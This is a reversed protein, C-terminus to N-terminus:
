NKYKQDHFDSPLHNRIQPVTLLFEYVVKEYRVPDILYSLGHGARPFTQVTAESSCSQAIEFSMSCPVLRDDEGHILLIPIKADKVAEKASCGNLRFRGFIRAALHLFPRCLAVPYHRDTCVKEIIASPTSYPSDAVICVVNEPLELGAAMLVTAAGMSIGNLVIPCHSGFRHVAYDIWMKCDLHETIGFTITNGGSKGHARQDVVLANFGMKRSLLHGGSCDRFACSRYGHFLIELPAGDHLHYYRGLLTCGDFSTIQIEECPAREMIHSICYIHEAVAEYQAGNIPDDITNRKAPPNYFATRFIYWLILLIGIICGLILLLFTM